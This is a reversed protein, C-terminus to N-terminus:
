LGWEEADLEDLEDTAIEEFDDVAGRSPPPARRTPTPLTRARTPPSRTSRATSQLPRTAPVGQRSYPSPADTAARSRQSVSSLLSDLMDLDSDADSLRANATNKRTASTATPRKTRQAYNRVSARVDNDDDDDGPEDDNADDVVRGTSAV